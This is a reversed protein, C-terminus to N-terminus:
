TNIIKTWLMALQNQVSQTRRALGVAAAWGFDGHLSVHDVAGHHVDPGGKAGRAAARTTQVAVVWDCVWVAAEWANVGM